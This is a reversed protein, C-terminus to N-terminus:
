RKVVIMVKSVQTIPIHYGTVYDRIANFLVDKGYKWNEGQRVGPENTIFQGKKRDYGKVVLMHREPGPQTFNKNGLAQGNAPIIVLNGADLENVIDDTSKVDKIEYKTHKYYGELIRTATDKLSTDRYEGFTDEQYKSIALIEQKAAEKSKIKEGKVWHIAMLVSAEECADQQHPDKWEAFPSQATFPVDLLVTDKKEVPLSTAKQQAIASPSTPESAQPTSIHPVQPLTEAKTVYVGGVVAAATVAVIVIIAVPALGKENGVLNMRESNCLNLISTLSPGFKYSNLSVPM